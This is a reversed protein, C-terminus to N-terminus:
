PRRGTYSATLWSFFAPSEFHICFDNGGDQDSEADHHESVRADSVRGSSLRDIEESHVELGCVAMKDRWYGPRQRQGAPDHQQEHVGLPDSAPNLHGLVRNADAYERSERLHIFLDGRAANFGHVHKKLQELLDDRCSLILVDHAPIERVSDAGVLVEVLKALVLTKGSGTTIWFCVRNIFQDCPIKEDEVVYHEGL